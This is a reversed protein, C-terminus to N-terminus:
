ADPSFLRALLAATVSPVRTFRVGVAGRPGAVSVTEASATLVEDSGPLQFQLAQAAATVAPASVPVLRMGGRSIDVVKCLHPYGDLFRNALLDV